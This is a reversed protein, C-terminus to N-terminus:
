RAFIRTEPAIYCSGNGSLMEVPHPTSYNGFRREVPELSM